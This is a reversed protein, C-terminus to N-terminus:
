SKKGGAATAMAKATFDDYQQNVQAISANTTELKERWAAAASQAASIAENLSNIQNQADDPLQKNVLGDKLAQVQSAKTQWDGLFTNVEQQLGSLVAGLSQRTSDLTMLEQKAAADLRAKQEDSLVNKRLAASFDAQAARLTEAFAGVLNTTSDWQAVLQEIPDKFKASPDCSAFSAAIFLLAIIRGM